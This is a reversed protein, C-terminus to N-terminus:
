FLSNPTVTLRIWVLYFRYLCGNVLTVLINLICQWQTMSKTSLSAMSDWLNHRPSYGQYSDLVRNSIHLSWLYAYVKWVFMQHLPDFLSVNVSYNIYKFVKEHETWEVPEEHYSLPAQKTSIWHNLCAVKVQAIINSLTNRLLLLLINCLCPFRLILIQEFNM